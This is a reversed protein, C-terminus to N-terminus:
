KKPESPIYGNPILALGQAQKAKIEKFTEKMALMREPAIPHTTESVYTNKPSSLALARFVNEPSELDIGARVAFYAGIYDAEREFDPGFPHMMVGMARNSLSTEPKKIPLIDLVTDAVSGALVLVPGYVIAGTVTLNRLIKGSHNQSLHALEHGAVIQILKTDAIRELIGSTFTITTSTASANIIPADSVQLNIKCVTQTKLEIKIKEPQNPAQIQVSFKNEKAAAKWLKDFEADSIDDALTTDNIALIQSGRSINQQAASSNPITYIVRIGKDEGLEKLIQNPLKGISSWRKLGGAVLGAHQEKNECFEANASLIPWILGHAKQTLGIQKTLSEQQLQQQQAKLLAEDTIRPPTSNLSACATLAFSIFVTSLKCVTM